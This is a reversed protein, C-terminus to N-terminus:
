KSGKEHQLDVMERIWLDASTAPQLSTATAVVPQLDQQNKPSRVENKLKTYVKKSQSLFRTYEKLM